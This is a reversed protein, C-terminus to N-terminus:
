TVVGSARDTVIKEGPKIAAPKVLILQDAMFYAEQHDTDRDLWECIVLGNGSDVVEMELGTRAHKVSDGVNFTNM